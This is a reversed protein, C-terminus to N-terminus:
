SYEIRQEDRRGFNVLRAVRFGVALLRERVLHSVVDDLAHADVKDVIQVWVPLDENGEEDSLSVTFKTGDHTGRFYHGEAYNASEREQGDVIGVAGFFAEAFERLSNKEAHACLLNVYQM